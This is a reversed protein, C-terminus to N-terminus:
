PKAAGTQAQAGLTNLVTSLLEPFRARAAAQEPEWQEAPRFKPVYSMDFRLVMQKGVQGPKAPAETYAADGFKKATDIHEQLGFRCLYNDNGRKPALRKELALATDTIKTRQEEPLKAVAALLPKYVALISAIQHEPASKDACKPSDAAMVLLAYAAMLGSTQRMSAYEPNQAATRWLLAAYVLPVVLSAGELTRARGWDLGATIGPGDSLAAVTKALQEYNQEALLKDLAAMIEQQQATYVRTEAPKAASRPAPAAPQEQAPCASAAALVVLGAALAVRIIRGAGTM